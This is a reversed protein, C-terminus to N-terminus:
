PLGFSDTETGTWTWTSSGINQYTISATYNQGPALSVVPTSSHLPTFLQSSLAAGDGITVSISALPGFFDVNQHVLGWQMMGPSARATFAFSFTDSGGPAISGTSYGRNPGVGELNYLDYSNTSDIDPVWTNSGTNQYTISATYYQGVLLSTVPTSSGALTYVQSTLAAADTGVVPISDVPGFYDVNQHVLGWQM